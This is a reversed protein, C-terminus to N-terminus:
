FSCFLMFRSSHGGIQRFLGAIVGFHYLEKSVLEIFLGNFVFFFQGVTLLIGKTINEILSASRRPRSGTRLPDVKYRSRLYVSFLPSSHNIFEYVYKTQNMPSKMLHKPLWQITRAKILFRTFDCFCSQTFILYNKMLKRM